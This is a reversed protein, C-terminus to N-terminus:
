FLRYLPKQFVTLSRIENKSSFKKFFTKKFYILFVKYNLLILNLFYNYIFIM